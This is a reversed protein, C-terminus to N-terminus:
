PLGSTATAHHRIQDRGFADGRSDSTNGIRAKEADLEIHFAILQRKNQRKGSMQDAPRIRREQMAAHDAGQQFNGGDRLDSRAAAGLRRGLRDVDGDAIQTAALGDLGIRARVNGTQAPPDGIDTRFGPLGIAVIRNGQQM